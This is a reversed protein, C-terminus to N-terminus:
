KDTDIIIVIVVVCKIKSIFFLLSVIFLFLAIVEGLLVRHIGKSVYCVREEM